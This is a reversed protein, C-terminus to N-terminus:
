QITYKLSLSNYHKRYMCEASQRKFLLFLQRSQPQAQPLPSLEPFAVLLREREKLSQVNEKLEAVSNRLESINTGLVQKEKQLELCLDQQSFFM